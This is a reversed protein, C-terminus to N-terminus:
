GCVSARMAGRRAASHARRVAAPAFSRPWHHCTTRGAHMHRRTCTSAERSKLSSALGLGEDAVEAAVVAVGAAVSFGFHRLPCGIQVRQVCTM